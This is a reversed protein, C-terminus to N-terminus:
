RNDQTVATVEWNSQGNEKSAIRKNAFIILVARMARRSVDATTSQNEKLTLGEM